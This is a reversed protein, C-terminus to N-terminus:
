TSPQIPLDICTAHLRSRHLTWVAPGEAPVRAFSDADAGAIAIRIRDGAHFQVSTPLLAFSLTTVEGPVLAQRDARKFSRPPGAQVFPVPATAERRHVGRLQGETLYRVRGDAAVHELYVIFAADERSSEVHLTVLAEGTICLGSELPASTYTLLRRDADARDPYHVPGSMSTTWRTSRGTGHTFDVEYRDGAQEDAPAQASLAGAAAAYLRQLRTGAPPWVTTTRWQSSPPRANMTKYRIFRAYFGAEPAAGAPRSRGLVHQDFFGAMAEFLAGADVAQSGPELFPDGDMAAGHNWTGIILEMPVNLSRWRALAGAATGSDLWSAWHQAPRAGARLADQLEMLNASTAAGKAVSQADDRCEIHAVADFRHNAAHEALAQRLLEGDTDADVPLVGLPLVAAADPVPSVPVGADLQAIFAGWDPGFAINRLGGPFLIFEYWDFDTFRPVVARLATSAGVQALEAANGAYSVGTVGIRGDCWPQRAVWAIIEQQDQVEDAGYEAARSGFSAGSGRADINVRAYGRELFARLESFGSGQPLGAPWRYARWYRTFQLVAPIRGGARLGAPLHVDLALRTGDRMSVYLSQPTRWPTGDEPAPMMLTASM